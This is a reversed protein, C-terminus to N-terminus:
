SDRPSEGWGYVFSELGPGGIFDSEGPTSETTFPKFVITALVTGHRTSWHASIALARGRRSSRQYGLSNRCAPCEYGVTWGPRNVLRDAEEEDVMKEVFLWMEEVWLYVRVFGRKEMRRIWRAARELDGAVLSARKAALRLSRPPPEWQTRLKLEYERCAKLPMRGHGSPCDM